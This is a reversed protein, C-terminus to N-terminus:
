SDSKLLGTMSSISSDPGKFMELFDGFIALVRSPIQAKEGSSVIEKLNSSDYWYTAELFMM